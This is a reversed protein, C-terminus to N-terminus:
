NKPPPSTTIQSPALVLYVVTADVVVQKNVTNQSINLNIRTTNSKDAAVITKLNDTDLSTVIHWGNGSLYTKFIQFNQDMTKQSVYQRSAQQQNSGAPAIYNELLQANKEWPFNKGFMASINDAPLTTIETSTAIPVSPKSNDGTKGTQKQFFGTLSPLINFAALVFYASILVVILLIAIFWKKNSTSKPNIEPELM